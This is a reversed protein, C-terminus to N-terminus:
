AASSKLANGRVFKLFGVLKEQPPLAEKVFPLKVLAKLWSYVLPTKELDIVTIGLVEEHIKHGGFLSLFVFDLVGVNEEHIQGCDPYFKNLGEELVQLKHSVEKIAKEQAEGETKLVILMNEFLSEVM